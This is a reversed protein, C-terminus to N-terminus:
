FDCIASVDLALSKELLTVDWFSLEGRYLFACVWIARFGYWGLVRGVVKAWVRQWIGRCVVGWWSRCGWLAVGAGFGIVYVSQQLCFCRHSFPHWLWTGSM